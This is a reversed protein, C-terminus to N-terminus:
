RRSKIAAMYGTMAAAGVGQNSEHRLVVVRKDSCCAAV